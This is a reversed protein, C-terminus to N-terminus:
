AARDSLPTGWGTRDPSYGMWDQGPPVGYLWQPVARDAPHPVGWGSRPHPVWEAPHLVWVWKSRPRPVGGDLGPISYGRLQIPYGWGSPGLVPVRGDLGPIPYGQWSSPTGAVQVQSPNGGGGMSTHVSLGVSFLVKVWGGSTPPLSLWSEQTTLIM